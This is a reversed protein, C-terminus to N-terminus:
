CNGPTGVDGVWADNTTVTDGGCPPITLTRNVTEYINAQGCDEQRVYVYSITEGANLFASVSWLPREATFGGAGLPYSNDFDWVGLDTTNGIVFVNEGFYTTANINFVVNIQCTTTVNPAGAALAPAYVGQTATGTCVASPLAASKSGWSVPFQGARRQAMTIFAAYSWTLDVASLPVGTNRNFQESLSGNAPTYKESVAVFSDAYATVKDLIQAFPANENGGNVKGV